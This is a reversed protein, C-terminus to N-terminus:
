LLCYLSSYIREYFSVFLLVCISVSVVNFYIFIYIRNFLSFSLFSVFFHFHCLFLRSNVYDINDKTSKFLSFTMYVLNHYNTLIFSIKMARRCTFPLSRKREDNNLQTHADTYTYIYTKVM